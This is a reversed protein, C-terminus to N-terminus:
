CAYATVRQKNGLVVYVGLYQWTYVQFGGASNPHGLYDKAIFPEILVDRTALVSIGAWTSLSNNCMVLLPGWTGVEQLM